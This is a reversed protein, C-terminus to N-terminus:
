HTAGCACPGNVVDCRRGGNSGMDIHESHADLLALDVAAEGNADVLICCATLDNMDVHIHREPYMLMEQLVSEYTRAEAM